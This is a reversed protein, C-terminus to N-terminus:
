INFIPCRFFQLLYFNIKYHSTRFSMRRKIFSYVKLVLLFEPKAYLHRIFM